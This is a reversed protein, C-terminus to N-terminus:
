VAVGGGTESDTGAFVLKFEKVWADLLMAVAPDLLVYKEFSNICVIMLLCAVQIAGSVEYDSSFFQPQIAGGPDFTGHSLAENGHVLSSQARYVSCYYRKLANASDVVSTLQEVNLGSYSHSSRLASWWKTAPAM